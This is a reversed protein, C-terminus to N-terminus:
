SPESQREFGLGFRHRFLNYPDWRVHIRRLRPLNQGYAWQLWNPSDPDPWGAYAGTAESTLATKLSSSWVQARPEAAPSSWHATTELIFPSHRWPFASSDPSAEAVAGGLAILRVRSDVPSESLARLTADVAEPNMPGKAAIGWRLMPHPGRPEIFARVADRQHVRRTDVRLAPAARLMPAMLSLLRHEIGCYQGTMRAPHDPGSHFTLTSSLAPDTFPGWTQWASWVRLADAARWEVNFLVVPSAPVTKCSISVVVGFGAAGAGRLAWFLDANTSASAKVVEGDADVMEMEVVSDCVLGLSRCSMGIGGVLAASALSVDPHMPTPLRASKAALVDSVVLASAGAGVTVADGSRSPVVTNIRSVDLIISDPTLTPHAQGFRSSRVLLPIGHKRCRAVTAVVHQVHSAFVIERPATWGRRSYGALAWRYDPDGPRVVHASRHPM